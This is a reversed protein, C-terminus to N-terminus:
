RGATWLSVLRFPNGRSPARGLRRSTCGPSRQSDHDCQADMLHFRGNDPCAVPHALALAVPLARARGLSGVADRMVAARFRDPSPCFQLGPPAIIDAERWIRGFQQALLSIVRIRRAPRALRRVELPHSTPPTTTRPHVHVMEMLRGSCDNVGDAEICREPVGQMQVGRHGTASCTAASSPGTSSTSRLSCPRRHATASSRLRHQCPASGAGQPKLSSPGAPHSSTSGPNRSKEDLSLVIAHAPSISM